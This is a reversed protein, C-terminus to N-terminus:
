KIGWYVMVEAFKGDDRLVECREIHGVLHGLEISPIKMHVATNDIVRM